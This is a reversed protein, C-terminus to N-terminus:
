RGAPTAPTTVPPLADLAQEIRALIQAPVHRTITAKAHAVLDLERAVQLASAVIETRTVGADIAHLLAALSQKKKGVEYLTYVGYTGRMFGITLDLIRTADEPLPYRAALDGTAAPDAAIQDHWAQGDREVAVLALPAEGAAATGLIIRTVRSPGRTPTRRAWTWASGVAQWEFRGDPDRSPRAVYVEAQDPAGPPHAAAVVALARTPDQSVAFTSVELGDGMARSLDQERWGTPSDADRHVVRLRRDVGIAFVLPEGREDQVVAFGHEASFATAAAYNKMLATTVSSARVSGPTTSSM